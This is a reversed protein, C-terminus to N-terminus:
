LGAQEKAFQQLERIIYGIGKQRDADFTAMIETQEFFWVRAKAVESLAQGSFIDQLLYLVGKMILTDSDDHIRDRLCLFVADRRCKVPLTIVQSLRALYLRGPRLDALRQPFLEIRDFKNESPAVYYM